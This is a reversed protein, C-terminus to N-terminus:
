AAPNEHRSRISASEEPTLIGVFVPYQRWRTGEEGPDIMLAILKDLEGGRILKEWVQIGRESGRSISGQERWRQINELPIRLRSPDRRIKEAIARFYALALRDLGEHSGQPTMMCEFKQDRELMM